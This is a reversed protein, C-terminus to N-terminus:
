TIQMVLIMIFTSIVTRLNGFFIPPLKVRMIKIVLDLFNNKERLKEHTFRLKPTFNTVIKWLSILFKSQTRGFSFFIM